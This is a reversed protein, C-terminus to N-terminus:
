LRDKREAALAGDLDIGPVILPPAKPLAVPRQWTAQGSLLLEGLREAVAGAAAVSRLEAVPKAYPGRRRM